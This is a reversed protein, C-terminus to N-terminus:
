KEENELYKGYFEAITMDKKKLYTAFEVWVYRWHWPEIKYTDVELWKQYTNHFGYKYANEKLWDFYKKLRKNNYWEEKTSASFFDIALWSQHESYWPKSCFEDPCGRNKIAVQTNYSRYASVNVLKKEFKEYFAKGMEQLAKNAKKRMKQWWKSDYIYESEIKELDDPVYAKDNFSVKASVFKQLSNDTKLDINKIFKKLKRYSKLIEEKKELIEKEKAWIFLYNSKFNLKKSNLFNIITNKLAKGYIDIILNHWFNDLEIFYKEGGYNEFVKKWQSFDITFDANWHIILVPMKFNKVIEKSVFSNKLFLYKQPIIGFFQKSMDYRSALPSVLVLKEINRNDDIFDIAVATGISYWWVIINEDKLKKKEKLYKYFVLSANKTNEEYPYAGSKGYWPYDYAMVNYGLNKLYKIESYFYPLPGWNWHFYYITKEANNDVYLWNINNWNWDDINIEEFKLNTPVKWVIDQVNVRVWPFTLTTEIKKGFAFLIAYFCLIFSVSVIFIVSLVIIAIKKIKKILKKNSM